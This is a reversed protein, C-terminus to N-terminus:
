FLHKLLKFQPVSLGMLDVTVNRVEHIRVDCFYFDYDCSFLLSAAFKVGSRHHGCSFWVYLLRSCWSVQKVHKRFM